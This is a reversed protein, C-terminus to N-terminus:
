LENVVVVMSNARSDTTDLAGATIDPGQTVSIVEYRDKNKARFDSLTEPFYEDRPFVFVGNGVPRVAALRDAMSREREADSLRSAVAGEAHPSNSQVCGPLTPLTAVAFLFGAVRSPSRNSM